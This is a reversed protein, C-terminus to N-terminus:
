VTGQWRPSIASPGFGVPEAADVVIAGRYCPSAEPGFRLALDIKKSDTVFRLRVSSPCDRRVAFRPPDDYAPRLGAPLRHPRRAGDVTEAWECGVAFEDLQASSLQM